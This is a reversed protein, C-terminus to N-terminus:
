MGESQLWNIESTCFYLVSVTMFSHATLTYIPHLRSKNSDLQRIQKFPLLCKTQTLPSSYRRGLILILKDLLIENNSWLPFLMVSFICKFRPTYQATNWNSQVSPCSPWKLNIKRYRGTPEDQVWCRWQESHLCELGINRSEQSGDPGNM